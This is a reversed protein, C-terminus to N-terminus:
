EPKPAMFGSAVITVPIQRRFRANRWDFSRVIQVDRIEHHDPVFASRLHGVVLVGDRHTGKVPDTPSDGACPSFCRSVFAVVHKIEGTTCGVDGPQHHIVEDVPIRALWFKRHRRQLFQLISSLQGISCQVQHRNEVGMLELDIDGLIEAVAVLDTEPRPMRVIKGFEGIIQATQFCDSWVM